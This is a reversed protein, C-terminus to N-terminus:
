EPVIITTAPPPVVLDFEVQMDNLLKDEEQDLWEDGNREILRELINFAYYHKQIDRIQIAGMRQGAEIADLAQGYLPDFLTLLEFAETANSQGSFRKKMLDKQAKVKVPLPADAENLAKLEDIIAQEDRIAFSTPKTIEPRQPDIINRLQILLWLHNYMIHDFMHNSMAMIMAYKGERDVKKAEGSQASDTFMQYLEQEAKKILVEWAEQMYRLGEVPPSVYSVPDDVLTQSDMTTTDPVKVQYVGFPSRVLVGSGNCTRCNQRTENGSGDNFWVLGNDCGEATCPMQKEVRIPNSTMVRSGQWDSFSTIAEDGYERFGAFFSDFYDVVEAMQFNNPSFLGTAGLNYVSWSGYTGSNFLAKSTKYDYRGMDSVPIGGNLVIPLVGLNHKYMEITDFTTEGEEIEREYHRYYTDKTITYYVRGSRGSGLTFREEPCYFTIREDTLHVITFSYIIYAKPELKVSSDLVGAGAPLWTLYGNPDDIIRDSAVKFLFDFYNFGTGYAKNQGFIPKYIYEETDDDVKVTFKSANIPHFIENKARTIAGKTIARFNALRYARVDEMENPRAQMMLRMPNYGKTHVTMDCFVQSWRFWADPRSDVNIYFGFGTDIAETTKPV